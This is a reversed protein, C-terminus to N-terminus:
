RCRRSKPLGQNLKRLEDRLERQVRRQREDEAASPAEDRLQRQLRRFEAEEGDTLKRRKLYLTHLRDLKEQIPGGRPPTLEFAPSMLIQDYRWGRMATDQEGEIAGADTWFLRYLLASEDMMDTAGAACIPSHTTAVFQINPFVARLLSIIARQWKPHLYQELEDLLVIGRLKSSVSKKCTLAWALLDLLWTLTGVYGDGLSSLSGEGWQGRITIGGKPRLKVAGKRLMLVESIWNCVHEV